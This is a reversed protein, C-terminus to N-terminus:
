PLADLASEFPGRPHGAGLRLALDIVDPPAVGEATALRAEAAIAALIRTRIQAATLPEGPDFMAPLDGEGIRAGDAYRYFGQDTKRGLHGASVLDEQIPSPRLRDPRGLGEWVGTAAALTVDIGTLDMLEFPGMPFGDERLAADIESVTAAGSELIRLAEITYPRNVRNVIFGPRDACIVPTKGWATVIAVARVVVRPDALPPSVVEVLAMVPAPNFFHLGVVRDPRRTAEAIEAVSLASTNTALIVDDAAVADLTRFITQKLALDELASEIVLDAEDALGDVTPVHRLRDLRQTVWADIAVPDLDLKRARRTLGDRIRERGGEIAADDVDYLVVECGAELAVQGIGAGMTGAGVIGVIAPLADGASGPTPEGM